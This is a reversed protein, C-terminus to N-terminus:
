LEDPALAKIQIAHIENPIMDQIATYVLQHRKVKSLAEFQAAVVIVTYHGAGHEAGAHGIHQSSDDIIEISQPNLAQKIKQEIIQVRSLTETNMNM